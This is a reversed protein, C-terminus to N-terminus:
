VDHEPGEGADRECAPKIDEVNKTEEKKIFDNFLERFFQDMRRILYYTDGRSAHAKWGRHADECEKLTIKGEVLLRRMKLLKKKHHKYSRPLLKQVVKGTNTVYFHFGLWNIGQTIPVIRTKKRNLSMGRETVYDNVKRKIEKLYEKDPHVMYFDDMYRTFWKIYWKEKVIHDLGSLALLADLQSLQNGLPVGVGGEITAHIHKILALIREDSFKNEYIHNVLDHPISAFYDHMDFSEIYCNTGYRRWAASLDSRLRELAFDTGKGKQSACNTTVLTPEMVPTIINDMLCKQVVRDHYKISKIERRKGRENLTFCNYGSLRYYGTELLEQVSLTCELGRLDYIAVSDKWRKGKRCSTHAMYLNDFDTLIEFNDYQNKM